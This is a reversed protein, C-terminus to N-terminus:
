RLIGEKRLTEAAFEFDTIGPETCYDNIPDFGYSDLCLQMIRNIIAEREILEHELKKIRFIDDCM